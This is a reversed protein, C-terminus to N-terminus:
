YHARLSYGPDAPTTDLRRMLVDPEVSVVEPHLRLRRAADDLAQGRLLGPFRLVMHRRGLSAEGQSSVGSDRAVVKLRERLAFPQEREGQISPKLQVILGRAPLNQANALGAIALLLPLVLTRMSTRLNDAEGSVSRRSFLLRM